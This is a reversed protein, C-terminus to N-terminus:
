YRESFVERLREETNPCGLGRLIFGIAQVESKGQKTCLAYVKKVFSDNIELSKRTQEQWTAGGALSELSSMKAAKREDLLGITDGIYAAAMFWFLNQEFDENENASKKKAM